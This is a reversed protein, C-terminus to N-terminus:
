PYLEDKVKALCAEGLGKLRKNRQGGSIGDAEPSNKEGFGISERSIAFDIDESFREIVKYVKSLSTGGKFTLCDKLNPLSFLSRLTFCVWFDKEILYAPLDMKEATQQFYVVQEDPPINAFELM